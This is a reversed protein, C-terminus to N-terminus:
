RLEFAHGHGFQQLMHYLRNVPLGMVSFFDGEIKKIFFAGMEQVGYAGAKDIYPNMINNIM